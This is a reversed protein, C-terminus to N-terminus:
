IKKKIERRNSLVAHEDELGCIRGKCHAVEVSGYHTTYWLPTCNDEDPINIDIREDALLLSIVDLDGHMVAEFFPTRGEGKKNVEIRPNALLLSIM